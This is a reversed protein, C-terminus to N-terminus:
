TLRDSVEEDTFYQGLDREEDMLLRRVKPNLSALAANLENFIKEKETILSNLRAKQKSLDGFEVAMRQRHEVNERLVSQKEEEVSKRERQIDALTKALVSEYELVATERAALLRNKDEAKREGASQRARRPGIRALNFPVGIVDHIWDQWERMAKNYSSRILNGDRKRAARSAAYGPHIAGFDEDIKPVLYFHFHPHSEDLHEIVSILRKGYKQELQKISHDRFAQWEVIRERPLSIVGCALIPADSRM